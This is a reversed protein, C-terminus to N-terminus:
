ISNEEILKRIKEIEREYSSIRNTLEGVLRKQAKKRDLFFRWEYTQSETEYRFKARYLDHTGMTDDTNLLTGMSDFSCRGIWTLEGVQIETGYVRYVPMGVVCRAKLDIEEELQQRYFRCNKPSIDDEVPERGQSVHYDQCFKLNEEHTAM